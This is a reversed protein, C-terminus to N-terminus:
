SFAPRPVNALADDFLAITNYSARDLPKRRNRPAEADFLSYGYSKLIRTVEVTNRDGVECHLKPHLSLVRSGGKLVEIEFGEVDIKLVSPAPYIDLLWDLSLSLTSQAARTGGAQSNGATSDLHNSSRGREAIQLYALGVQVSAAASLVDVRACGAGRQGASRHLLNVLWADPEIALVRGNEGARRAAAFAFLGCNAGVDWVTDGTSVLEDVAALLAPDVRNLDRRWYRLASGPSVFISSGGFREPLRRRLVINRSAREAFTRGASFHFKM